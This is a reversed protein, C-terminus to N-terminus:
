PKRRPKRSKTPPGKVMFSKLLKEREGPTLQQLHQRIQDPALRRKLLIQEIIEDLEEPKLKAIEEKFVDRRFDAMTYSMAIGEM